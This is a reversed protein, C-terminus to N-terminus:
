RTFVLLMDINHCRHGQTAKTFHRRVQHSLFVYNHFSKQSRLAQNLCILKLSIM